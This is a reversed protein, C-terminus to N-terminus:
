VGRAQWRFDTEVRTGANDYFAVGFGKPNPADLFDVVPAIPFNGVGITNRQSVTPCPTMTLAEVDIYTINFAVHKGFSKVTHTGSQTGTTVILAGTSDALNFTNTTPNRVLYTTNIALGTPLAGTTTLTVHQGDVLGHTAITVVCPNAITMTATQSFDAAALTSTIPGGGDSKQKVDLRATLNRILLLGATTTATVTLRIKLYRFGTKLVSTTNLDYTYSIDDPSSGIDCQVTCTGSIAEQSWSVTVVTAPLVAGYDVKDEITAPTTSPQLYIPFSAAVQDDPTTWGNSTYHADWTQTLNVPSISDTGSVYVNTQTDWGAPPLIQQDRLIYDPPQNVVATVSSEVGANGATDYAVIWYTFTGGVTELIQSFTASVQGIQTAGSFTTGKYIKYYAIPLTSTAPAAWRLLANNDVIQATINQPISPAVITIEVSGATSVNGAVDRAAVWYTRTGSWAVTEIYTTSQVSDVQTGGAYSAGYKIVYDLVQFQAAVAPWEIRLEAGIITAVPVPTSPATITVLAVSEVASVNGTTDVAKIAFKYSGVGRLNAEYTTGSVQAIIPMASYVDSVGGLRIEYYDIDLDSIASWGLVIGYPLVNYSIGTVNSPPATKGIVTHNSVTTYASYINLGNRARIRVDYNIGDQVDLFYFISTNPPLVIATSWTASASQKFEVEITGGNSVFGDSPADWTARIRTVVTGDQTIYLENTGSFLQLNTLAQVNYPSPLNSNQALDYATEEGNNWDFVGSATERLVMRIALRSSEDSQDIVPEAETVEFAKANWGLRSVTLSINEGVEVQYAALGFVCSVEIQQRAQEVLIKALRQCATQSTTCAFQVDEWVREGNDLSQYYDNKYAPFDDEQYAKLPSTFTGRVGNFSDRRSLKTQIELPELCDNETLTISPTRWAAPFIKWKGNVYTISGGIATVMKELIQQPTEEGSFTANIEYRKETAGSALTLVEDCIVQADYFSGVAGATTELESLPIGLGYVTDMLYDGIVRAANASYETAATVFNYLPKGRVTFTTSPLGNPYLLADAVYNAYGHARGSQKHDSTWRPTATILDAIAANGPDGDSYAFFFRHAADRYQVRAPNYFQTSWRPDPSAGFIVLEDDLWIEDIGSIKHGALTYVVQLQTNDGSVIKHTGSQTGSFNILSGTATTSIKFTNRTPDRVYYTAGATMGTLLAGTTSIVTTAGEALGHATSTIIGPSAVAMTAPKLKESNIFSIAGGVRMRGYIIQWADSSYTHSVQVGPQVAVKSAQVRKKLYGRFSRWARRDGIAPIRSKIAPRYKNKEFFRQVEDTTITNLPVKENIEKDSLSTM